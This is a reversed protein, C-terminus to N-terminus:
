RNKIYPLPRTMKGIDAYIVGLSNHAGAYHPNIEIAKKFPAIADKRRGMGYYVAGLNNHAEELRPNIEIAKKYAAIAEKKKGAGKYANGLNLYEKYDDPVYKLTKKYFAIPERWYENQRITLFSYFALLAIIIAFARYKHRLRSAGNALVLFFGVSPLYLWHEAMYANIPYLNSQYLIAIFFWLISFFILNNTNRKKFAYLLLSASILIGSIVKPDTFNFLKHGYNAHLNFPLVMIRFYGTIAAFFGPARQLLTTNHPINSLIPRLATLRLLIYALTITLVPLLRMIRFKKKFAYHYLLLLAPLILSNERSLLALIYSLLMLAYLAISKRDILKIYLILCLLLFIASLSDARGSIYSVAGTHLPHTVFLAGTFLSLIRDAYLANILWYIALATLVHLLINTIHYGKANLKWVSYDIAYTVMQLPRYSNWKQRGGTAIDKTFCKGIGPWNRIYVNNKILTIDDRIFEGGLSNAYVAFGLVIILIASLLYKTYDPKM